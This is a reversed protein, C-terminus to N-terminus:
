QNSTWENSVWMPSIYKDWRCLRGGSILQVTQDYLLYKTAFDLMIEFIGILMATKVRGRTKPSDHIFFTICFMCLVLEIGVMTCFFSAAVM